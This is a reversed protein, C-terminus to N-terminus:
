IEPASINGSCCYEMLGSSRLDADITHVKKKRLQLRAAEPLPRAGIHERLM